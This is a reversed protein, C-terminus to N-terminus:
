ERTYDYKKFVIVNNISYKEQTTRRFGGRLLSYPLHLSTGRACVSGDVDVALASGVVQLALGREALLAM